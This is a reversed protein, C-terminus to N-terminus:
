SLYRFFVAVFTLLIHVAQSWFMGGNLIVEVGNCINWINENKSISPFRYSITQENM